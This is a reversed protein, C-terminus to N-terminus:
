PSEVGPVDVRHEWERGDPLTARVLIFWDGGMTFELVAEYRGPAVEQMDAFLPVMGAHSMNGELKVTAGTVPKEDRDILTIVVTAPGVRPPQPTVALTVAIDSQETSRGRCGTLALVLVVWLGLWRWM